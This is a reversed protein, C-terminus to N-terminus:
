HQREQGSAGKADRSAVSHLKCKMVNRALGQCQNRDRSRPDRNLSSQRMCCVVGLASEM